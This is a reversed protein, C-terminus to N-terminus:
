RVGRARALGPPSARLGPTRWRLARGPALGSGSQGAPRLASARSRPAAPRRSSRWLVRACIM